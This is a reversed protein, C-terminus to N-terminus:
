ESHPTTPKALPPKDLSEIFDLGSLHPMTIDLFMLEIEQSRLIAGAEIASSATAAVEMLDLKGNHGSLGEIEIAEDDVVMCKLKIKLTDM